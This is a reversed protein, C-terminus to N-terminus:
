SCSAAIMKMHDAGLYRMSSADSRADTELHSRVGDTTTDSQISAWGHTRDAARGEVQVRNGVHKRFFDSGSVLMYRHTGSKDAVNALIYGGDPGPEVCGTVKVHRGGTLDIKTTTTTTTETTQAGLTAAGVIALACTLTTLKMM